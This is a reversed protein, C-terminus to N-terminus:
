DGRGSLVFLITRLLIKLDFLLSWNRVYYLDLQVREEYSIEHRVTVQWYGTVGPKLSLVESAIEGYRTFEEETKMRPGVLSMEGRLVNWFQPLEDLNYKRLIRGCRTIRPDNALKFNKKFEQELQPNAALMKDAGVKMTRIKFADFAGHQGLVRRRFFVPRGDECWVAIASAAILPSALLLLSASGCLDVITKMASQTRLWISRNKRHAPPSSIPSNSLQHRKGSGNSVSSINGSGVSVGKTPPWFSLVSRFAYREVCFLSEVISM